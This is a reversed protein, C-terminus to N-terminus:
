NKEPVIRYITASQFEGGELMADNHALYAPAILKHQMAGASLVFFFGKIRELRLASYQPEIASVLDCDEESKICIVLLNRLDELM